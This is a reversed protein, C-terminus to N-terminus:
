VRSVRARPLDTERRARPDGRAISLLIGVSVLTVLLNSRGYSVLPLPLGTTPIVGLGVSMHLVAHIAIFSTIGMALLQGFLDPARRAIRFGVVVVVLYLLTLGAVGMFGWEEGIMSFIFDNHPEPLFGFKQRGEGFGVGTAGGSGLAILSQKVQYGAGLATGEMDGFSRLREMRFGRSLQMWAVPLLFLGMFLFHAIRAGATFLVLLGLLGVMFATSLDPQLLIPVILFGWVVFFPALGRTLSQFEDRKKVALHATWILIALKAFESPQITVGLTLWRRAGNIEPAIGTTWPLVLLLLAGWVAALLPWALSRWWTYPIRSAAALGVLGVVGGIAQRVLYFHDPLAQRQALFASASYLNVLGFGLLIATAALLAAPEWGKALGTEPLRPRVTPAIDAHATSM